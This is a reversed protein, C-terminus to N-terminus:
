APVAVTIERNVKELVLIGSIGDRLNELDVLSLPITVDKGQEDRTWLTYEPGGGKLGLDIAVGRQPTTPSDLRVGCGPNGPYRNCLSM